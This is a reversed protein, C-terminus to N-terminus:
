FTQDTDTLENANEPDVQNINVFESTPTALSAVSEIPGTSHVLVTAHSAPSAIDSFTDVSMKASSNATTSNNSAIQASCATM